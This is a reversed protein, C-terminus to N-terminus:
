GKDKRWRSPSRIQKETVSVGRTRLFAQMRELKPEFGCTLAESDLVPQFAPIVETHESENLFPRPRFPQPDCM